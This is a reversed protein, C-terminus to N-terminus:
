RAFIALSSGFGTTRFCSYGSVQEALRLIRRGMAVPLAMPLNSTIGFRRATEIVHGIGYRYALKLAPINRSEAFAEVLTM